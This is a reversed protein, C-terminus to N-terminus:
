KFTISTITKSKLAAKTLAKKFALAEKKLFSEEVKSEYYLTINGSAKLAGVNNKGANAIFNIKVKKM